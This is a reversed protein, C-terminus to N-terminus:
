RATHGVTLMVSGFNNLYAFPVDNAFCTLTGSRPARVTASAGIRFVTSADGDIAGMLTFWREKAARRRAEFHRMFANPSEFGEPGCRYILDWWWGEASLAYSVGAELAIGTANWFDRARVVAKQSDARGTVM